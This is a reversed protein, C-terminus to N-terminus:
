RSWSEAKKGIQIWRNIQDEDLARKSRYVFLIGRDEKRQMVVIRHEYPDCRTHEFEYVVLDKEDEIASWRGTPCDKYLEYKRREKFSSITDDSIAVPIRAVEIREDWAHFAQNSPIMKSFVIEPQRTTRRNWTRNDLNITDDLRDETQASACGAALLLILFTSIGMYCRTAM